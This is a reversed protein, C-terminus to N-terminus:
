LVWHSIVRAGKYDAEIVEHGCIGSFAVRSEESSSSPVAENARLQSNCPGLVVCLYLQPPVDDEHVTSGHHPFYVAHGSAM